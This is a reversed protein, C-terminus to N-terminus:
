AREEVKAQPAVDAVVAEDVSERTGEGAAEAGEVQSGRVEGAAAMRAKERLALYGRNNLDSYYLLDRREM